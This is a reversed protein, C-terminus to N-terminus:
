KIEDLLENLIPKFYCNFYNSDFKLNKISLIPQNINIKHRFHSVYGLNIPMSGYIPNSQHINFDQDMYIDLYKESIYRNAMHVSLDFTNSTNHISKGWAYNYYIFFFRDFNYALKNMVNKNRTLYSEINNYLSLLSMAHDIESKDKILLSFNYQSKNNEDHDYLEIVKKSSKKNSLLYKISNMLSKIQLNDLFIAQGFYFSKMNSNEKVKTLENLYNSLKYDCQQNQTSSFPNEITKPLITEDNDIVTIYKYKDINNLYCENLILQNIVEVKLVDFIGTKESVIERFDNLYRMKKSNNYNLLNPICKLNTIELFSSYKKFLDIFGHHSSITQNCFHIKDYGVLKNLKIWWEFSKLDTYKNLYFCKACIISEKKLEVNSKLLKIKATLPFKFNFLNYNTEIIKIEIKFEDDYNSLIEKVNFSVDLVNFSYNGIRWISIHNISTLIYNDILKNGNQDFINILLNFQYTKDQSLYHLRFFSADKFYFVATRKFYIFENEDTQNNTLLEWEGFSDCYSDFTKEVNIIQNNLANNLNLKHHLIIIFCDISILLIFILKTYKIYSINIMELLSLENIYLIRNIFKFITNTM